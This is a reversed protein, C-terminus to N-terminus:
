EGPRVVVTASREEQLMTNLLETIDAATIGAIAALEDAPTRGRFYSSSLLSAVREVSELDAIAEGYMMKKCLEFQELDIGESRQRAIETLLAERVREPEESEGSFIFHLCGDMCGYEGGFGPQVLGEDYLSHYLTSTEGCLLETLMDCAVELKATDEEVPMEKFGIAFLPMAISMTFTREKQAIEVPEDPLVRTTAAPKETPLGAREVAALLQDMTINGAACLVMNAPNYFADTCAYLMEPTIEAISEVTGAIDDKIPHNKYLCELLAYFCRMEAHDEYMKIEQSIIGQEKQITQETFHPHGVFSLLIDLNRDLESSATFIYSTREFGTYANASAGTQAYLSFADVGDENEFMKHELFHAVGAPLSTTRGGQEFVRNIAGFHTSYIAHVAGYEPMPLLRLALGNPLIKEEFRLANQAALPLTNPMM